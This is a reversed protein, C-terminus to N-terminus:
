VTIKEYQIQNPLIRKPCDIPCKECESLSPIRSWGKENYLDMVNNAKAFRYNKEEVADETITIDLFKINMRPSYDFVLIGVKPRIFFKKRYLDYYHVLQVLDMDEPNNGWGYETRTSDADATLKLDFIWKESDVDITEFDVTGEREEHSPLELQTNVISHGIFKDDMPDFMRKFMAAQQEIREIAVPKKGTSTLPPDVPKGEVANKGICLYEFYNGKDMHENTGFPINKDIWQTKWRLPCTTEAELDKLASQTLKFM